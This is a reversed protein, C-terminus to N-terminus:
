RAEIRGLRRGLERVLRVMAPDSTADTSGVLTTVVEGSEPTAQLQISRVIDVVELGTPLEVTVQDGLDFDRGARLDETDVTVTALEVPAAGSALEETGAQTLEGTADTDKSGDRLKEVRWWDAAATTDAVEVFVRDTPAEVESGQVLAHTVTPASRKFAVRRLNGLGASFRATSTMDQPAYVEFLIQGGSVRTRFGLGGGDIAVRRCVELLGEFRTTVSTTTGAGALTDLALHPIQRATLASPGCNEDVLTRIIVEANTSAITRAATDPQDAWAAAPSPWTIYGATVALDDTFYATVQGPDAESDIGWTYDQPIELPGEAWVAGDRIVVIRNGPQLQAMIEPWAPLQVSGSAPENFRRTCDLNTWADLPDGVITLDQDCVLLQIAM